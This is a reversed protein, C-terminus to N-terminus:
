PGTVIEQKVATTADDSVTAKADVTSEDDAYLQWLSSTQDTRNRLVKYLWGLAEEFTPALPPAVQGPLTITGPGFSSRNQISFTAIPFASSTGDIQVNNIMVVYESGAAFFGADTDNSLDVTFGNVGQMSDLNIGDTDILSFGATSSREAAAIVSGDKYIDIDGLIFTAITTSETDFFFPVTETGVFDGVYPVTKLFMEQSNANGRLHTVDVEPVGTNTQAPIQGGVWEEVNVKPIGATDPTAAATGIWHTLDVEPVGAVTPTAAATGIWHTVDVEPVGANTPAAPASGLWGVVNADVTGVTIDLEGQGLGDKITIVPYGATDPTAVPAVTTGATAWAEVNSSGQVIEYTTTADPDTIWAPSVTAIDGTLAYDTIIRSQGAGTGTLLNLACGNLINDAFTRATPLLAQTSTGGARLTGSDLPTLGAGGGTIWASDGQVRIAELSDDGKVFTSWDGTASVLDAAFTDDVIEDIVPALFMHDLHMAVLAADAEVQVEALMATSMGGLDGLGAGAVGVTTTLDDIATDATQVLAPIDGATQTTGQVAHVNDPMFISVSDTAVFTFGVPDTCTVEKTTVAYDTVYGYALQVASAVDHFLLKCGILADAEAPGSTLIFQTQSTVSAVTTNIMANPYGIEFTALPTAMDTAGDITLGEVVVVYRSGAAYFGATANSALDITIWHVGVTAAVDIDVGFGTTSARATLNADKYIKIAGVDLLTVVISKSPDDSSYTPFPIQLATGPRVMGLNNLAM